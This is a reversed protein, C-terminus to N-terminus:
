APPISANWERTLWGARVLRALIPYIKGSAFGIQGMLEYGYHQRDLDELFVALVAAIAETARVDEV